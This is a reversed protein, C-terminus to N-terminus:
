AVEVTARAPYPKQFFSAYVENMGSFDEMKQLYVNVKVVESLQVGASLLVEKLNTLVQRTQETINGKVFENTKPDIGIQGSCFVLNGTKIAQSFPGIVAPAKQSVIEKKM